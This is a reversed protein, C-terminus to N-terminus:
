ISKPRNSLFSIITKPNNIPIFNSQIDGTSKSQSLTFTHYFESQEVDSFMHKHNIVESDYLEELQKHHIFEGTSVDTIGLYEKLHLIDILESIDIPQSDNKDM